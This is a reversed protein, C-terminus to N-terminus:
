KGLVALASRMPESSLAIMGDFPQSMEEILFVATSVAMAGLFLATLATANRPAFLGFSAFMMTLWSVLVALFAVPITNATQEYALWRAQAIEEVQQQIRAVLAKQADTAPALKNFVAQLGQLASDDTFSDHGVRRESRGPFIQEYRQQYHQKLQARALAGEPGYQALLRDVVIIRAATQKMGDGVADYSNKASAILLGLVLASLTAVLGTVVKVVDKSEDSLHGEPLARRLALGLLAGGFVCALTVLGIAAASM